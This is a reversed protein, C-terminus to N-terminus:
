PQEIHSAGSVHQTLSQPRVKLALSSAGSVAAEVKGTATLTAHSAGSVAVTAQTLTLDGLDAHSAGSDALDLRGARGAARANAAGSVALKMQPQDYNQIDLHAAGSVGFSQASPSTVRIRLPPQNPGCIRSDYSKGDAHFGPLSVSWGFCNFDLRIEGGEVKLKDLMAPSGTAVMRNEKGQIYTVEAPFGIKLDRGGTWAFDRTVVASPDKGNSVDSAPRAPQAAQLTSAGLGTAAALASALAIMLLRTM